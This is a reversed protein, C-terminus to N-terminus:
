LGLVRNLLRVALCAAVLFVVSIRETSAEFSGSQCSIPVLPPKPAPPTPRRPSMSEKINHRVPVFVM